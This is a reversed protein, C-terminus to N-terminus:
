PSEEGRTSRMAMVFDPDDSDPIKLRLVYGAPTAMEWSWDKKRTEVVPYQGAEIEISCSSPFELSDLKAGRTRSRAKVSEAVTWVGATEDWSAPVEVSVQCGLYEGSEAGQCLVDHGVRLANEGFAWTQRAWDCGPFQSKAVKQGDVVEATTEVQHVQWLGEIRPPPAAEDQQFCAALSAILLSTM